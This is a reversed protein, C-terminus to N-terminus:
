QGSKDETSEEQMELAADLLRDFLEDDEEILSDARLFQEEDGSEEAFNLAYDWEKGKKSFLTIEYAAEHGELRFVTHGLYSGAEDRTMDARIIDTKM